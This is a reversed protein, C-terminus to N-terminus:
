RIGKSKIVAKQIFTTDNNLNRHNFRYFSIRQGTIEIPIVM